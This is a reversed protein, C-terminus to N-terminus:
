PRGMKYKLWFILSALLIGGGIFFLINKISRSDDSDALLDLSSTSLEKEGLVEQSLALDRKDLVLLKLKDDKKSLVGSAIVETGVKISLDKTSFNTALRFTPEDEQDAALYINKGVKKVVLGHVTLYQNLYEDSLDGAGITEPKPFDSVNGIISLDEAQKLKIKFIDASKSIAGSTSVLDGIDILPWNKKTYYIEVIKTYDPQSDSMEALFLSATSTNSPGLAMGTFNVIQKDHMEAISLSASLFEDGQNINVAGPSPQKSIFWEQNIPDWAQSEGESVKEYPVTQWVQALPTLLRVEDGQNNLSLRSTQRDVVLFQGAAITSSANFVYPRSSGEVDDLQWGTLNIDKNSLNYLEVWELDDSGVPDPLFESIIFDSPTFDIPQIEQLRIDPQVDQVNLINTTETMLGEPDVVKLRLLYDGGAQYAHNETKEDGTSDDGFDWIYKLPGEEPDNSDEASLVISQGALLERSKIKIVAQPAQNAVFQNVLGPTPTSTWSFNDAARAYSKNESANDQYSANDLLVSDPDYLKVSDGGSNNLSIGTIQKYLVLYTGPSLNLNLGGDEELTFVRASNDQLKFGALSVTSPGSNYLEIWEADDAGKPNPMFESIRIQWWESHNVINQGSPQSDVPEPEPGPEPSPDQEPPLVSGQSNALGPTGGIASSIQWNSQSSDQILSKKELTYGDGGAGWAADYSALITQSSGGDFSLAVTSSSNSLSMVTDFVTGSFGPHDSLFQDADSALIFFEQSAITSTGQILDITHNSGDYFRWAQRGSGALIEVTENGANYVEVWEKGSDSGQDDYMIESVVLDNPAALSTKALYFNSLLCFSLFLIAKRKM